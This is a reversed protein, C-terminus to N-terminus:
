QCGTFTLTPASTTNGASLNSIANSLDSPSCDAVNGSGPIFAQADVLSTTQGSAVSYSTGSTSTSFAGIYPAGLPLRLSYTACQTNSPCSSGVATAISLTPSATSMQPVTFSFPKTAITLSQLASVSLDASTGGTSSATTIQGAVTAPSQNSGSQQFLPVNGLSSGPQVGTTVTSTYAIGLGNIAIAVVDYTGSPVSCFSFNGASDPLTAQLVRDVGSADAQQLTVVSTGGSITASSVGDVLKGSISKAVDLGAFLAPKLRWQSNSLMVVSACSNVTLHLTKNENLQVPFNGSEIQSSPVVIGTQAENTLGITQISSNSALVVCNAATACNNNAIRTGQTNDLLLVRFQQFTAPQIQTGSALPALTCQTASSGIMDIQVPNSILNPTLDVWGPDSPSATASANGRVDAITLYIHSYSGQPAACTAPDSLSVSIAATGSGRSVNSGSPSGGCSLLIGSLITAFFTSSLRM